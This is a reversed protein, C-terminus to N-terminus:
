AHSSRSRSRSRSCCRKVALLLLVIWFACFVYLVWLGMGVVSSVLEHPIPPTLQLANEGEMPCKNSLYNGIEVTRTEAEGVYDLMLHSSWWGVGNLGIFLVAFAVVLWTRSTNKAANSLALLNAGALFTFVGFGITLTSRVNAIHAGWEKMLLESYVIDM